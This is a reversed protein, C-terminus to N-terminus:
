ARLTRGACFDGAVARNGGFLYAAPRASTPSLACWGETSYLLILLSLIQFARREGRFLRPILPLLPVM